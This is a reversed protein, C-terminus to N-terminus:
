STQSALARLEALRQRSLEARPHARARECWDRSSEFQRLAGTTDGAAATVRGLYYSVPGCCAIGRGIVPTLQQYPALMNQVSRLQEPTGLRAAAEATECVAHWNADRPVLGFDDAALQGYWRRAADIDGREHNIWALWGLWAGRGAPSRTAAREIADLDIETFRGQELLLWTRQIMRYSAANPDGAASGREGAQHSLSEASDWDGRLIAIAARWLPVYWEFRPLCLETAEREYAAIEELVGDIDGLDFLDVIRWNRAQLLAVPDGAARAVRAMETAVGLRERVHDGTWLALHQASLTHALTAPDGGGRAVEVAEAALRRARDVDDYYSELALAAQVRARLVVHAEGIERLAEELLAVAEPDPTTVTVALGKFGLAAAALAEGDGAARAYVAAEAFAARAEERRGDRDLADGLRALLRARGADPRAQPLARRLVTAADDYALAAVAAEAAREAWSLTLEVDALPTAALLHHAVAGAPAGREALAEGLRRHLRARRAGSMGAYVADAVLAHAFEYVGIAGAEERIVRADLARELARILEDEALECVARLDDLEFVVGAVAAARLLALADDGLADVRQAILERLAAPVDDEGGDRLTEVVFLPNGGTRQRVREAADASADGTMLRAIAGADLPGLAIREVSRSRRLQALLRPLGGGGIDRFAILLLLPEGRLRAALHTLLALAGAGASQMDDLVLLAPRDATMAELAARVAEFMRYRALEADPDPEPPPARRAAAVRPLMRALEGAHVDPVAAIPLVGDEVGRDLAETFPQYSAVPEEDCRGYLVAGGAARTAIEAALRTKGIGPDGSLVVIQPTGSGARLWAQELRALQTDRGVLPEDAVAALPAPLTTPAPAAPRATAGPREDSTLMREIAARTDASPTIGLEETLRRRLADAVQLAAARDGAEHLLRMLETQAVESLPDAAARERAWRVAAELDGAREAAAAQRALLEALETRLEERAAIAWEDDLEPLLPRTRLTRAAELDGGAAGALLERVDIAVAAPDLGVEGRTAVLTEAASDGLARGTFWTAQRLSRRAQEESADPRLLGALQSRGHRGPHLALWALLARARRSEPPAIAAGDAELRLGGLLAIRLM